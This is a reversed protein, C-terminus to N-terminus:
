RVRRRNLRSTRWGEYWMERSAERLEGRWESFVAEKLRVFDCHEVNYPDALGWPFKRGMTEPDYTDPSIISLPLYPVQADAGTSGSGVGANQSPAPHRDKPSRSKDGPKGKDDKDKGPVATAASSDPEVNSQKILFDSDESSDGGPQDDAQPGTDSSSTSSSDDNDDLGLTELPDLNTKKISNWVANKLHVMHATTLTDAKSIVPIVTTKGQLTRLVQLDFQEDLGGVARAPASTGSSKGNAQHAQVRSSAALNSDLRVPDLVLFVCHIHTDQVGPSRIVKQEEAFTEEFKSELFSSIERLQLDVINKELGQSDWLTLGIREGDIDTEIYQSTFASNTARATPPPFLDHDRQESAARGGKIRPSRALSRHLLEIFSTKGSNQAGIVLINFPTPDKRRRVRRPSNITSVATSAFSYRGRHTMSGTRAYPDVFEGRANQYTGPIPPVVPIQSEPSGRTNTTPRPSPSAAGGDDGFTRIPQPPTTGNYLDPLKPPLRSKSERERRLMEEQQLAHQKKSLKGSPTRGSVRESSKIRRLFNLSTRRMPQEARGNSEPIPQLVGNSRQTPSRAPTVPSSVM